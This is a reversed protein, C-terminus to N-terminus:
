LGVLLSFSTMLVTPRHYVKNYTWHIVSHRVRLAVDVWAGTTLWGPVHGTAIAMGVLAHFLVPMEFLNKFNDAPQVNELRAAVQVSTSAQQPHIRKRRMEQVRTFLLFTGVAATFLVM